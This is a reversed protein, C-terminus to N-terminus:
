GPSAGSFLSARFDMGVWELSPLLQGWHRLSMPVRTGACGPVADELWGARKSGQRAQSATTGEGTRATRLAKPKNKLPSFLLKNGKKLRRVIPLPLEKRGSQLPRSFSLMMEVTALLSTGPCLIKILFM